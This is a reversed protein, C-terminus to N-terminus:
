GSFSQNWIFAGLISISRFGLARLTGIERTRSAVLIKQLGESLMLVTAFVHVVLALGAATLATALRRAWLNKWSYACPPPATHGRGAV